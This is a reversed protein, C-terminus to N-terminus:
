DAFLFDLLFFSRSSLDYCQLKRSWILDDAEMFVFSLCKREGRRVNVLDETNQECRSQKQFLLLTMGNGGKVLGRVVHDLCTVEIQLFLMQFIQKEEKLTQRVM